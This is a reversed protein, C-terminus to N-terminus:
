KNYRFDPKQFNYRFNSFNFYSILCLYFQYLNSINHQSMISNPNLSCLNSSKSVHDNGSCDVCKRPHSEEENLLDNLTQIRKSNNPCSHHRKSCHGFQGCSNCVKNQVDVCNPNFPCKYSNTDYHTDLHCTNCFKVRRLRLNPHNTTNTQLGATTNTAAGAVSGILVILFKIFTFKKCV